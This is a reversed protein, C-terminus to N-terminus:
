FPGDGDLLELAEALVPDLGGSDEERGDGTGGDDEQPDGDNDVSPAREQQGVKEDGLNSRLKLVEVLLEQMQKIAQVVQNSANRGKVKWKLKSLMALHVLTESQAFNLLTNPDEAFGRAM